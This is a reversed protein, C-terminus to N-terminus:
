TPSAPGGTDVLVKRVSIPLRCLSPLFFALFTLSAAFTVYGVASVGSKGSYPFVGTLLNELLRSSTAVSSIPLALGVLKSFTCVGPLLCAGLGGTGEESTEDVVSSSFVGFSLCIWSSVSDTSRGTGSSMSSEECDEEMLSEWSTSFSFISVRGQQVDVSPVIEVDFAGIIVFMAGALTVVEDAANKTVSEQRSALLPTRTTSIDAGGLWSDDLSLTKVSGSSPGNGVASACHADTM